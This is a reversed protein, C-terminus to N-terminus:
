MKKVLKLTSDIAQKRDDFYSLLRKADELNLKIGYKDCTKLLVENIDIDLLMSLKNYFDKEISLICPLNGRYVDDEELNFEGFPSSYVFCNQFAIGNDCLPAIRVNNDNDCEFFFNYEERDWQGCFMDFSMMNFIDDMLVLSKENGLSISSALKFMGLSTSICNFYKKCFDSYMYYKKDKERYLKSIIGLQKNNKAVIFDVCRVKCCVALESMFLEEFRAIDKFYYFGDDLIYWDDYREIISSPIGVNKSLENWMMGYDSYRKGTIDVASNYIDDKFESYKFM